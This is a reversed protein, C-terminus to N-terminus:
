ADRRSRLVERRADLRRGLGRNCSVRLLGIEEPGLFPGIGESFSRSEPGFKAMLERVNPAVEGFESLSQYGDGMLGQLGSVSRMFTRPGGAGASTLGVLEGLRNFVGTGSVGSHIPRGFLTSAFRGIQGFRGRYGFLTDPSTETVGVGRLSEGAIPGGEAIRAATAGIDADEALRLIALENEIDFGEVGVVDATSGRRGLGTAEIRQTRLLEGAEGIEDVIQHLTVAIRGDGLYVGSSIRPFAEGKPDFVRLRVASDRVGRGSGFGPIGVRPLRLQPLRLEPVRFRRRRRTEVPVDRESEGVLASETGDPLAFPGSRAYLWSYPQHYPSSEDWVKELVDLVETHLKHLDREIDEGELGLRVSHKSEDGYRGRGPYLGSLLRELRPLFRTQIARQAEPGQLPAISKEYWKNFKDIRRLLKKHNSQWAKWFRRRFIRHPERTGTRNEEITKRARELFYLSPEVLGEAPRPRSPGVHPDGSWGYPAYDRIRASPDGATTDLAIYDDVPIGEANLREIESLTTRIMREGSQRYLPRDLYSGEWGQEAHPFEYFTESLQTEMNKWDVVRWNRLEGQDDLGVRLEEPSLAERVADPLHDIKAGYDLNLDYTPRRAEPYLWRDIRHSLHGTAFPLMNAIGTMGWLAPDEGLLGLQSAGANALIHSLFVRRPNGLNVLLRDIARLRTPKQDRAAPELGLWRGLEEIKERHVNAASLNEYVDVDPIPKIGLTRVGTEMRVMDQYARIRQYHARFRHFLGRWGSNLDRGLDVVNDAQGGAARDVLADEIRPFLYEYEDGLVTLENKARTMAVYLLNQEEALSSAHPSPLSQYRGGGRETVNLPLLVREWERGKASHITSFEVQELLDPALQDMFWEIEANERLLVAVEGGRRIEETLREIVDHQSASIHRIPIDISERGSVLEKPLRASASSEIFARSADVIEPTSRFNRAIEYRAASDSFDRMVDGTGGRLSGYIAQDDDGVALLNESLNRVLRWDAPSVDQFEDIQVYPFRAQYVQRMAPDSELLHGARILMDQFDLTGTSRKLEEYEQALARLPVERVGMARATGVPAVGEIAQRASITFTEPLVTPEFVGRTVQQKAREIERVISQIERPTTATLSLKRSVFDDLSEQVLGPPREFGLREANERVIKYAFGHLTDIEFDGIAQTCLKM